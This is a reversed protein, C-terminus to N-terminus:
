KDWAEEGEHQKAHTTVIRGAKAKEACWSCVGLIDFREIQFKRPLAKRVQLPAVDEEELDFIWHCCRCVLHNHNALNPDLRLSDHLPTVEKLLGFNQFIRINRYITGLSIAPIEAKVKEYLAEPSLHEESEALARYIVQRQHTNALGCEACRRRFFEMRDTLLASRVMNSREGPWGM